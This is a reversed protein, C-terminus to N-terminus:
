VAGIGDLPQMRNSVVSTSQGHFVLDETIGEQAEAIRQPYFGFVVRM